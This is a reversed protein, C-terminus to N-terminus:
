SPDLLTTAAAVLATRLAHIAPSPAMSRRWLLMVRRTPVPDTVPVVVLRDSLLERGLRPVLAVAVGAEVLGIQSSFEMAWYRIDPVQRHLDFMHVLWSHCVSGTPACAWVEGALDGPTVLPQDALRHGVPLVLDGRDLGLMTSEVHDPIPLPLDGWHHVLAVDAGGSGVLQVADHPDAEVVEVTLGPADLRLRGLTPAVLGRVGTSFAALRLTGVVPAAPDGAHLGAELAELADLIPRAEDVLRRGLETPVVGRGVRELLQGGVRRELRKVQQSLASPTYGLDLAAAAVSGTREIATLTVIGDLDIM